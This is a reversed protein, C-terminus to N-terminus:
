ASVATSSLQFESPGPSARGSQHLCAGALRAKVLHLDVLIWCPPLRLGRCKVEHSFPLWGCTSMIARMAAACWLGCVPLYNINVQIQTMAIAYRSWSCDQPFRSCLWSVSPIFHFRHTDGGEHGVIEVFYFADDPLDLARFTVETGRFTGPHLKIRTGIIIPTCVWPNIKPCEMGGVRGFIWLFLYVYLFLCNKEFNWM